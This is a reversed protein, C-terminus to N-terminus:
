KKDKDKAKEANVEALAADRKKKISNLKLQWYYRLRSTYGQWTPGYAPDERYLKYKPDDLVEGIGESYRAYSDALAEYEALRKESDTIKAAGINRLEIADVQSSYADLRKYIEGRVEAPIEKITLQVNAKADASNETADIGRASTGEVNAADKSACGANVLLFSAVAFLCVPRSINPNMPPDESACGRRRNM